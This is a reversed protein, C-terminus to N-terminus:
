RNFLLEPPTLAQYLDSDSQPGRSTRERTPKGARMWLEVQKEKAEELSTGTEAANMQANALIKSVTGFRPDAQINPSTAMSNLQEQALVLQQELEAVRAGAKEVEDLTRDDFEVGAFSRIGADDLVRRVTTPTFFLALLCVVIILERLAGFGDRLSAYKSPVPESM